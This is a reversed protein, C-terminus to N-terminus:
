APEIGVPDNAAPVWARLFTAHDARFVIPNNGNPWVVCSQGSALTHDAIEASGALMTIVQPGELAPISVAQNGQDTVWRELAFYNTAVLMDQEAVSDAVRVPAIAVPQLAPEAVALGQERHMERPRGQSDVRGWDDLRYTVDSPQQIEYVIVGAGLAHITGAPLLYTEGSKAPVARLHEASSGDLRDAAAAFESMRDPHRLGLYLVGEPRADLVYWAETKGLKDLAAAQSDNPHVQISLNQNADILKVLLPFLPRGGVANLGHQGLRAAPDDAVVQGLTRGQGFGSTIVADNATVLAEGIPTAADFELGFRHLAQGGWPKEDLRPSVFSIM